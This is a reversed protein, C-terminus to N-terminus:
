IFNWEFSTWDMMMKAQYALFYWTQMLKCLSTQGLKCSHNVKPGFGMVEENKLWNFFFLSLIPDLIRKIGNKQMKKLKHLIDNPGLKAEFECPFLFKHNWSSPVELHGFPALTAQGFTQGLFCTVVEFKLMKGKWMLGGTIKLSPVLKASSFVGLAFSKVLLKLTQNLIIKPHILWM